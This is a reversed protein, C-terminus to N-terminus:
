TFISHLHQAFDGEQMLQRYITELRRRERARAYHRILRYANRQAEVNEAFAEDVMCRAHLNAAETESLQHLLWRETLQIENLESRM